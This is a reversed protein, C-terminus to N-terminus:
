LETVTVLVTAPPGNGQFRLTNTASARVVLWGNGAETPPWIDQNITLALPASALLGDLGTGTTQIEVFEQSGAQGFEVTFNEHRM